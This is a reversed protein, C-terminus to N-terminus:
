NSKEICIINDHEPLDERSTIKILKSVREKTGELKFIDYFTFDDIFDILENIQYQNDRKASLEVILIPKYKSITESAGKLVSLEFGEVDIKIVKPQINENLSDDLKRVEIPYSNSNDDKIILSAGGRNVQWNDYIVSQTNESGLAFDHAVVNKINNLELNFQFLKFTEPHAEFAIVKGFDGVKKAAFVTMLGINAGVDIFCDGVKLVQKLFFLIGKEYTGTQFLSLEVGNDISPNIKLDFGHITRIIHEGVKEPKPLLLKPLFVSLRRIGRIDKDRLFSILRHSLPYKRFKFKSM